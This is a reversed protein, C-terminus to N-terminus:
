TYNVSLCIKKFHPVCLSILSIVGNRSQPRLMMLWSATPVDRVLNLDLLESKPLLDALCVLERQSGGDKGCRSAQLGLSFHRACQRWTGQGLALWLSRPRHIGVQFKLMLANALTPFITEGGVGVIAVDKGPGAGFTVLPTYTTVGGCMM